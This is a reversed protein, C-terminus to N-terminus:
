RKGEVGKVHNRRETESKRGDRRQRKKQAPIFLAGRVGDEQGSCRSARRPPLSASGPVPFAIQDAHGGRVVFVIILSLFRLPLLLALSDAAGNETVKALGRLLDVRRQQLCVKHTQASKAWMDQGGLERKQRRDARSAPTARLWSREAARDGGATRAARSFPTRGVRLILSFLYECHFRPSARHSWLTTRVVGNLVLHSYHWVPVWCM